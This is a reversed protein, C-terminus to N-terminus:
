MKATPVYSSAFVMKVSPMEGENVQNVISSWGNQRIQSQVMHNETWKPTDCCKDIWKLADFATRAGTNTVDKCKELYYSVFGPRLNSLIVNWYCNICLSPKPMEGGNLNQKIPGQGM